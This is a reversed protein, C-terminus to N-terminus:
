PIDCLLRRSSFGFLNTLAASRNRRHEMLIRVLFQQLSNFALEHQVGLRGHRGDREIIMEMWAFAIRFAMCFM